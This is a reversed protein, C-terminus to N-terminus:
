DLADDPLREGGTATMLSKMMRPEVSNPVFHASGDVTAFTVGDDLHGGPEIGPNTTLRGQMKAIDLDIPETWMGSPVLPTGGVVLITQRQNDTVQDPSLPGTRPQLTGPGVIMYYDSIYFGNGNASSPHRYVIPMDYAVRSNRFDDWPLSLDFKNYLEDEGLYPLILVRWSHLRKGTSDKTFSPPYTGYDAAYANLASAIKELNKASATRDRNTTLKSMTQGAVRFIGILLAGLLIVGVAGAVILRIARDGRSNVLKSVADSSGAAFRPM